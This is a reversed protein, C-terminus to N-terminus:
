LTMRRQYALMYNRLKDFEEGETRGQAYAACVANALSLGVLEFGVDFPEDHPHTANWHRLDRLLQALENRIRKARRHLNGVTM